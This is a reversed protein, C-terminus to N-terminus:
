RHSQPSNPSSPFMAIPLMGVAPLSVTYLRIHMEKRQGDFQTRVATAADLHTWRDGEKNTMPLQNAPKQLKELGFQNASVFAKKRKSRSEGWWQCAMVSRLSKGWM